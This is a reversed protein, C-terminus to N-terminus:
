ASRSRSVERRPLSGPAPRFGCLAATDSEFNIRKQPKAVTVARRQVAGFRLRGPNPTRRGYGGSENKCHFTFFFAAALAAASWIAERLSATLRFGATVTM